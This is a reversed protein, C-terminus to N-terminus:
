YCYTSVEVGEANFLHGCDGGNNWIAQGSGFTGGGCSDPHVENTYVRCSEGPGLEIGPFGFDQGPNGANLRWGGLNVPSGGLNQIVAYEDSEVQPVNGDYFISAIVV